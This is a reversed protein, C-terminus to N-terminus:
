RVFSSKARMFLSGRMSRRSSPAAAVEKSQTQIDTMIKLSNGPYLIQHSQKTKMSTERKKMAPRTVHRQLCLSLLNLAPCTVNEGWMCSNTGALTRILRHHAKFFSFSHWSLLLDLFLIRQQQSTGRMRCQRFANSDLM